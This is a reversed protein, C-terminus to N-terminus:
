LKILKYDLDGIGIDRAYNLQRFWDREPWAEKFVDKGCAENILDVCAKDISVPDLSAFIGVDPAIRPDDKALCDCERTIKIAFNFFAAHGKKGKLVASAYEIMKEQMNGAGNEWHVDMANHPCVAICSSCGTCKVSDIQSKGNVITIAGVSCAGECAGCGACNKFRVFPSVDSHQALKGERSACGMGLNKLAGGFGTMVHGKFHSIGVISNIKLFLPALKATKVFKGGLSVYDVGEAIVVPAGAADLTFGHEYALALHDKANLRKGRYLTNTDTLIPKAQKKLIRDSVCRVYEPRVFGTNGEEGFHLKVAVEDNKDIFRLLNSIDLLRNFKEIIAEKTDNNKVSIFYVESM